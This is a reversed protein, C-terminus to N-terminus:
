IYIPPQFPTFFVVFLSGVVGVVGLSSSEIMMIM